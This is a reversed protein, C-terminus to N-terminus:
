LVTALRFPITKFIMPSSSRTKSRELLIVHVIHSRESAHVNKLGQYNLASQVLYINNSSLIEVESSFLKMRFTPRPFVEVTPSCVSTHVHPSSFIEIEWSYVSLIEWIKVRPLPVGYDVILMTSTIAKVVLKLKGRTKGAALKPILLINKGKRELKSWIIVVVAVSFFFKGM